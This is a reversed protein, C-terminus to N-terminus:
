PKCTSGLSKKLRQRSVSCSDGTHNRGCCLCQHKLDCEKLFRYCQGENWSYRVSSSQSNSSGPPGERRKRRPLAWAHVIIPENSLSLQPLSFAKLFRLSVIRWFILSSRSCNHGPVSIIASDKNSAEKGCDSHRRVHVYQLMGTPRQLQTVAGTEQFKLCGRLISRSPRSKGEVNDPLLEAMNFYEFREIKSVLKAPILPFGQGLSFGQPEQHYISASLRPAASSTSGSFMPFLHYRASVWRRGLSALIAPYPM